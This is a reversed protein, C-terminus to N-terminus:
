AVVEGVGGRRPDGAADFRGAADREVAHVGGFFVNRDPWRRHDPWRAALHAVIADPTGGEIELQAGEVHLRPADVAAELPLDEALLRSATHFIASRIRNSGGTGLGIRRGDGTLLATPAMMSAIRSGERWEFFGRPNLDEEGLMNNMMQETGPIIDGNGEGNSISLAALDGEADVVSIHTTGGIKRARGAMRDLALPDLLRATAAEIGDADEAEALGSTRRGEVAVGMAAAIAAAFPEPGDLGPALRDLVALQAAILAGGASPAPNTLVRSGLAELTLPARAAVRYDGLDRDTLLGGARAQAALGQAPPGEYFYRPGEEVMAELTEAFAPLRRLTGAPAPREPDAPDAMLARSEASAMMIPAVIRMLLAQFDGIPHGARALAIAPRAVEALPLRGRAAHVAFLGAPLGPVAAAARGIHFDQTAAGFDVTVRRFDPDRGDAPRKRGPTQSFFDFIRPPEGDAPVSLLFGGGGLSCLVPEAVCAALMGALAADCASGGAALLEAAARATAPDGAAVAGKTGATRRGM